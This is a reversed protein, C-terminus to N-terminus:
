TAKPAKSQSLRNGLMKSVSSLNKKLGHINFLYLWAFVEVWDDITFHKKMWRKPMLANVKAFTCLRMLARAAKRHSGAATILNDRFRKYDDASEPLKTDEVVKYYYLFFAGLLQIFKDWEYFWNVQNIVIRKGYKSIVIPYKLLIENDGTEVHKKIENVDIM